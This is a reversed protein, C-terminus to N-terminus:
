SRRTKKQSHIRGPGRGPPPLPAFIENPDIGLMRANYEVAAWREIWGDLKQQLDTVQEKLDAIQQDSSKRNPTSQNRSFNKSQLKEYRGLEKDLGNDYLAQRSVVLEQALRALNIPHTEPSLKTWKLLIDHAKQVLGERRLPRPKGKGGRQRAVNKKKV